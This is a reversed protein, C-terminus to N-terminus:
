SLYPDLFKGMAQRKPGENRRSSQFSSIPEPSNNLGRRFLRRTQQTSLGLRSSLPSQTCSVIRRRKCASRIRSLHRSRSPSRTLLTIRIRKTTTPISKITFAVYLSQGISQTETYSVSNPPSSVLSWTLCPPLLHLENILLLLCLVCLRIRELCPFRLLSFSEKKEKALTRLTCSLYPLYLAFLTLYPLTPNYIESRDRGRWDM